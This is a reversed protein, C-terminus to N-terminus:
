NLGHKYVCLRRTGLIKGASDRVVASPGLDPGLVDVPYCNFKSRIFEGVPMSVLIGTDQASLPVDVNTFSQADVVPLNYKQSLNTDVTQQTSIARAVKGSSPFTYLVNEGSEDYVVIDHPTLNIISM